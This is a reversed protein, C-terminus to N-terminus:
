DFAFDARVPLHDSLLQTSENDITGAWVTKKALDPSVYVYDLRRLDGHEGDKEIRTPFSGGFRYDGNRFLVELDTFGAEELLSLATYDLKGQNLNNNNEYRVDLGQFFPELRGHAYYASDSLSFTNFDGALIVPAGPPLTNTDDLILGVERIRTEWNGPHLHVCYVYLDRIKARLLGHHFGELFRQVDELPYRSTIGTPFGEEKLLVSYPHGWYAADAALTEPTYENLEQLCVIDPDQAKMWELWREKREPAITFGYWVNYTILRLPEGSKQAKEPKGSCGYLCLAILLSLTHKM